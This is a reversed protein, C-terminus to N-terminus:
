DLTSGILTRFGVADITDLSNLASIAAQITPNSAANEFAAANAAEEEAQQMARARGGVVFGLPSLPPMTRDAFTRDFLASRSGSGDAAREIRAVAVPRFPAGPPRPSDASNAQRQRMSNIVFASFPGSTPRSPSTGVPVRLGNLVEFLDIVGSADPGPSPIFFGVNVADGSNFAANEQAAQNAVHESV